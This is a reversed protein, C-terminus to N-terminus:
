SANSRNIYRIVAQAVTNASNGKGYKVSVKIWSLGEKYRGEAWLRLLPDEISSIFAEITKKLASLQKIREQLSEKKLLAAEVTSCSVSSKPMGTLKAASAGSSKIELKKLEEKYKKLCFCIKTYQLLEKNTM